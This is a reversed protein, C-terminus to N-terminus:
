LHDFVDDQVPTRCVGRQICNHYCFASLFSLRLNHNHLEFVYLYQETKRAPNSAMASIFLSRVFFQAVHICCTAYFVPVCSPFFLSIQLLETFM